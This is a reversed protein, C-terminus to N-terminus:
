NKRGNYHAVTVWKGDNTRQDPTYQQTKTKNDPALVECAWM